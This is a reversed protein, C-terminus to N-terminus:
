GVRFVSGWVRRSADRSVTHHISFRFRDKDDTTTDRSHRRRELSGFNAVADDEDLSLRIKTSTDHSRM